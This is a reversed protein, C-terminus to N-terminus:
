FAGGTPTDVPNGCYCRKMTNSDFAAGDDFPGGSYGYYCTKNEIAASVVEEECWDGMNTDDNCFAREFNVSGPWTADVVETAGLWSRDAYGAEAAAAGTQIGPLLAEGEILCETRWQKAGVGYNEVLKACTGTALLVGYSLVDDDLPTSFTQLLITYSVGPQTSNLTCYEPM